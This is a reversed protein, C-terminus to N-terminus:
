ESRDTGRSSGKNIKEASRLEEWKPYERELLPAPWHGYWAYGDQRELTIKEFRHTVERDRDTFLPQNDLIGYFRAWIPPASPVHTVERHKRGSFPDTSEKLAIGSLASRKLWAVAARVSEIQARDPSELKMLFRTISVTEASMVAASEFERGPRPSFDIPDHQGAWGTLAGRVRIQCKLICAIGRSFSKRAREKRAADVFAFRHSSYVERLFRLIRVTVDDNFTITRQYAHERRQNQPWGGSPHELKFIWDLGRRFARAYREEGGVELVRALFKL